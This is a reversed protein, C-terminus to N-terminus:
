VAEEAGYETPIAHNYRSAPNGCLSKHFTAKPRFRGAAGKKPIIAGTASLM